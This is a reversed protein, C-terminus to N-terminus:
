RILIGNGAPPFSPQILTREATQNCSQAIAFRRYASSAGNDASDFSAAAVCLVSTVFSRGRGRPGQCSATDEAQGRRSLISVRAQGTRGQLVQDCTKHVSPTPECLAGEARASAGGRIATGGHGGRGKSTPYPSQPLTSQGSGLGPSSRLSESRPESAHRSLSAELRSPLKLIEVHDYEM